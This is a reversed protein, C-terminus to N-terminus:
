VQPLDALLRKWATPRNTREGRIVWVESTTLLGRRVRPVLLEEIFVESEIRSRFAALPVDGERVEWMQVQIAEGIPHGQACVTASGRSDTPVISWGCWCRRVVDMRRSRGISSTTPWRM